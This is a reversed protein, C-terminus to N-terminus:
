DLAGHQELVTEIEKYRLTTALERARYGKSNKINLDAGKEALLKVVGLHKGGTAEL